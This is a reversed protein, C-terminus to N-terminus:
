GIEQRDSTENTGPASETPPVPEFGVTTNVTMTVPAGGGCAFLSSGVSLAAVVLLGALVNKM